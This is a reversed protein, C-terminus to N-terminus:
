RRLPVGPLSPIPPTPTPAVPTPAPPALAIALLARVIVAPDTRSQNTLVAISVGEVPLYRVAARFGLLRGSHGYSRRGDIDVIQVGLGYRVTPDYRASDRDDLMHALAAPRLVDGGYLAQAWRALDTASAAVGGAGAAATVVSTFPVIPSGDTLDIPPADRGTAAFRYGHAVDDPPADTPQYWTHDLGLPVFFRSRLQSALPARGVAEAVLGLVLYNTNSYHWGEGPPFYPKGVYRLTRKADWRQGRDALLLRDISPHFFYDRLGSTHDLLQRITVTPGIKTLTPLYTRVPDDLGLKGEDALAVILSATFTKSISAVAFGTSPTVPSGAAVDASGSVGVWRSGGPLIVAVSIGPIGARERLQDLRAQLAERTATTMPAGGSSRGAPSISATPTISGVAPPIPRPTPTAMAPGSSTPTPTAVSSGDPGVTASPALSPDVVPSASPTLAVLGSFPEVPLLPGLTVSALAAIAALGIILVARRVGTRRSRSPAMTPARYRPGRAPVM